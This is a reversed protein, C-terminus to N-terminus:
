RFLPNPPQHDPQTRQDIRPGSTTHPELATRPKDEAPAAIAFTLADWGIVWGSGFVAVAVGGIGPGLVKALNMSLRLLANADHLDRHDVPQPIVGNAAPGFFAAATGAVGAVAAIHWIQATGTLVLIALLAQTCASVANSWVMVTGRRFRDAVVGGVVVFLVQPLFGVALVVGFWTASRTLELVAFSQAIPAVASGTSSVLRGLLFTRFASDGRLLRAGAMVSM